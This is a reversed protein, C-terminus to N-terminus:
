FEKRRFVLTALALKSPQTSDALAEISRRRRLWAFVGETILARDARGIEGHRRFFQHLLADAPAALPRIEAIAAALGAIQNARLTM